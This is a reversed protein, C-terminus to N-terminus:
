YVYNVFTRILPYVLFSPYLIDVAATDTAHPIEGENCVVKSDPCNSAAPAIQISRTAIILPAKAMLRLELIRLERYM